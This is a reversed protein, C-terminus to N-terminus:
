HCYPEIPVRWATVYEDMIDPGNWWHGNGFKYHRVDKAYECQFTVQYEYFDQTVPNTKEEPLRDECAIWGGGNDAQLKASLKESEVLVTKRIYNAINNSCKEGDKINCPNDRCVKCFGCGSGNLLLWAIQEVKGKPMGRDQMRLYPTLGDDGELWLKKESESIEM